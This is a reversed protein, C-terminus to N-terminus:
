GRGESKIRAHSKYRITVNVYSRPRRRWPTASHLRLTRLDGRNKAQVRHCPGRLSQPTRVHTCEVCRWEALYRWGHERQITTEGPVGPNDKKRHHGGCCAQVGAGDALKYVYAYAGAGFRQRSRRGDDVFRRSRRGRGLCPARLRDEMSNKEIVHGTRDRRLRGSESKPASPSSFPSASSLM